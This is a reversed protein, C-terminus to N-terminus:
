RYVPLFPIEEFEGGRGFLSARFLSLRRVDRVLSLLRSPFMYHGSGKLAIWVADVVHGRLIDM